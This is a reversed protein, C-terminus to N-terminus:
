RLRPQNSQLHFQLSVQLLRSEGYKSAATMGSLILIVPPPRSAGKDSQLKGSIQNRIHDQKPYFYIAVIIASSNNFFFSINRSEVTLKIYKLPHMILIFIAAAHIERSNQLRYPCCTFSLPLISSLIVEFPM